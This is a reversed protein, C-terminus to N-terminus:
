TWTCAPWTKTCRKENSSWKSVVAAMADMKMDGTAANMHAVLKDLLEAEQANMDAEMKQDMESM